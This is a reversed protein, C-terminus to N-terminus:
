NLTERSIPKHPILKYMRLAEFTILISPVHIAASFVDDYTADDDDNDAYTTLM